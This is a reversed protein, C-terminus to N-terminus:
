LSELMSKEELSVKVPEWKKVILFHKMEVWSVFTTSHLYCPQDLCPVYTFNLPQQLEEEVRFCLENLPMM